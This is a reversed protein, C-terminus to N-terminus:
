AVEVHHPQWRRPPRPSARRLLVVTTVLGAVVLLAVVVEGAEQALIGRGDGVPTLALVWTAVLVAVTLQLWSLSRGAFTRMRADVHLARESEAPRRRNAVASRTLEVVGGIGLGVVAVVLAGSARSGGMPVLLVFAGWLLAALAVGRAITVIRPDGVPERPALSAVATRGRPQALRFTEASLAGIVVGTVIGFFMDAAPSVTGAGIIQLNEYYRIGVIAAFLGGFTGGVLRHRRHRTLYHSYVEAEEGPVVATGAIWAVDRDEVRRVWPQALLLLVGVVAVGVVLLVGARM